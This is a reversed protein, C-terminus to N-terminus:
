ASRALDYLPVILTATPRPSERVYTYLRHTIDPTYEREGCTQCVLAPVNRVVVLRGDDEYVFTTLEERQQGGCFHCTMTDIM